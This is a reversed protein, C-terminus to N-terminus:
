PLSLYSITFLGTCTCSVNCRALVRLKHLRTATILRQVQDSLHHVPLAIGPIQLDELTDELDQIFYLTTYLDQLFRDVRVLPGLLEQISTIPVIPVLAM